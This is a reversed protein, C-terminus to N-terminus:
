RTITFTFNRVNGRIMGETFTGSWVERYQQNIFVVSNGRAGGVFNVRLGTVANYQEAEFYMGDVLTIRFTGNGLMRGGDYSTWRLTTGPSIYSNDSYLPMSAAMASIISFIIVASLVHKM